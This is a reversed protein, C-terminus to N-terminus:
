AKNPPWPTLSTPPNSNFHHSRALRKRLVVKALELQEIISVRREDSGDDRLNGVQQDREAVLSVVVAVGVIRLAEVEERPEVARRRLRTDLVKGRDGKRKGKNTDGLKRLVDNRASDSVDGWRLHSFPELTGGTVRLTDDRSDGDSGGVAPRAQVLVDELSHLLEKVNTESALLAEREESDVGLDNRVRDLVVFTDGSRHKGDVTEAELRELAVDFLDVRVKSGVRLDANGEVVSRGVKDNGGRGLCEVTKDGSESLDHGRGTEVLALNRERLSLSNESHPEQRDVNRVM